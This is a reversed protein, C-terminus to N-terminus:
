SDDFFSLVRFSFCEEVHPSGTSLYFPVYEFTIDTEKYGTSACWASKLKQFPNSRTMMAPKGEAGEVRLMIKVKDGGGGGNNGEDDGSSSGGDSGDGGTDEVAEVDSGNDYNAEPPAPTPPPSDEILVETDLL